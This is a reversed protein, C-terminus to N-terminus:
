DTDAEADLTHSICMAKLKKLRKLDVKQERKRTQIRKCILHIERAREIEAADEMIDTKFTFTYVGSGEFIEHVSTHLDESANNSEQDLNLQKVKMASARKLGKSRKAEKADQNSQGLEHKEGSHDQEKRVLMEAEIKKDLWSGKNRFQNRLHALIDEHVTTGKLKKHYDKGEWEGNIQAM